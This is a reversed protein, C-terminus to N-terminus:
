GSHGGNTRYQSAMTCAHAAQVATIDFKQRLLNILNPRAETQEALWRAADDVKQSTDSSAM